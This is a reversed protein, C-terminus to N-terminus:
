CGIAQYLFISKPDYKPCCVEQYQVIRSFLSGCYFLLLEAEFYPKSSHTGICHSWLITYIGKFVYLFHKEINLSCMYNHDNGTSSTEHAVLGRPKPIPYTLNM